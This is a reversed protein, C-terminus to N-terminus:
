RNRNLARDIVDSAPEMGLAERRVDLICILQRRDIEVAGLKVAKARVTPVVDYHWRYDRDNKKQFWSRRLGLKEAFEHLEDETDATLHAWNSYRLGRARALWGWNRTEDVYVAM